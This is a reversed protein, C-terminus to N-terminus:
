ELKLGRSWCWSSGRSWGRAWRGRNGWRSRRSRSWSLGWAWSCSRGGVTVGVKLGSGSFPSSQTQGSGVVFGFIASGVGIGVVDFGGITILNFGNVGEGDGVGDGVPVADGVGDGVPVAVGVGDGVPVEVGVGLGVPVAVGVGLGVPVALGVGDGVVVTM